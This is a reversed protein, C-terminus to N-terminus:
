PANTKKIQVLEQIFEPKGPTLPGFVGHIKLPRHPPIIDYWITFEPFLQAAVKGMAGMPETIADKDVEICVKYSNASKLPVKVNEKGCVKVLVKTPVGEQAWTYMVHTKTSGFDMGCLLYPMSIMHTIDKPITHFINEFIYEEHYYLKGKPSFRENIYSLTRISSDRRAYRIEWTNRAFDKRKEECFHYIVYGEPTRKERFSHESYVVKTAPIFSKGKSLETVRYILKEGLPMPPYRLEPNAADAIDRITWISVIFSIILSFKLARNMDM